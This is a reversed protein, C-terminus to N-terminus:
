RQARRQRLLGGPLFLEGVRGRSEILKRVGSAVLRGEREIRAYKAGAAAPMAEKRTEAGLCVIREVFKEIKREIVFPPRRRGQLTEDGPQTRRARLHLAVHLDRTVFHADHRNVAGLPKFRGDDNEGVGHRRGGARPRRPQQLKGVTGHDPRSALVVVNLNDRGGTLRRQGFRFVFVPPKEIDGHRAGGVPQDNAASVAFAPPRRATPVIEDDLRELRKEDLFCSSPSFTRRKRLAAGSIASRSSPALHPPSSRRM